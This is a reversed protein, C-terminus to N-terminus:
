QKVLLILQLFWVILVILSLQGWTRCLSSYNYFSHAWLLGSTICNLNNRLQHFTLHNFYIQIHYYFVTAQWVYISMISSNLCILHFHLSIQMHLFLWVCHKWQLQQKSYQFLQQVGSLKCSLHQHKIGNIQENLSIHPLCLYMSYSHSCVVTFDCYFSSFVLLTLPAM